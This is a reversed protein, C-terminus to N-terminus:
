RMLFPTRGTGVRPLPVMRSAAGDTSAPGRKVTGTGGPVSRPVSYDLEVGVGQVLLAM